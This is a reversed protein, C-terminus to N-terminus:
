GADSVDPLFHGSVPLGSKVLIPFPLLLPASSSVSASSTDDVDNEGKEPKAELRIPTRFSISFTCYVFSFVRTREESIGDGSPTQRNTM